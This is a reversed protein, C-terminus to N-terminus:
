IIETWKKERSNYKIKGDRELSSLKTTDYIEEGNSLTIIPREGELRQPNEMIYKEVTELGIKYDQTRILYQLTQKIRELTFCELRKAARVNRKIFWQIQELTDFSYKKEAIFLAIIKIHPKDNQMKQLYEKLNFM